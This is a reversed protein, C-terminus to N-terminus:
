PNWPSLVKKGSAATEAAYIGQFSGDLISRARELEAARVRLCIGCGAGLYDPRPMVGPSVGGALLEKEGEIADRTNAFAFVFEAPSSSTTQTDM